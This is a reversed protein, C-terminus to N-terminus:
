GFVRTRVGAPWRGSDMGHRALLAIAIRDTGFGVCASHAVQGEATEIGFPLAFHDRHYNTSMVAIPPRDPEVTVVGEFKLGEDRQGAALAAGLRGFFPDNAPVAAVDLGLDELLSLGTALGEDRHREAEDASGLYVIEHMQFAQM